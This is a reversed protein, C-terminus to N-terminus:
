INNKMYNNKGKGVITYEYRSWGADSLSYDEPFDVFMEGHELWSWESLHGVLFFM